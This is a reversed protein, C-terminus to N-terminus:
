GILGTREISEVFYRQTLSYLVLLPTIVLLIGASNLLSFYHNDAFGSTVTLSDTDGMVQAVKPQLNELVQPLFDRGPMLMTVYQYDNWQWVFSFLFVVILGPVAGPLMVRVFTTFLGAGDIYAAEELEHSMGRFFQRMVFIYLGCRFGSATVAMLIFPWYTGVLNLPNDRLLGFLRFFRLNLYTPTVILTPPIVLTFVTLAFILNNGPFRFRALGYGVMACTAVQLISVAMTLLTTNRLATVYKMYTWAMRFHEFTIRRPIWKVSQDYLDQVPMLSQSIRLIMPVLIVYSIGVLLVARLLSAILGRARVRNHSLM